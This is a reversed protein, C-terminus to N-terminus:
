IASRALEELFGPRCFWHYKRIAEAPAGRLFVGGRRFHETLAGSDRVESFGLGHVGMHFLKRSPPVTPGVLFRAKALPTHRVMDRLWGGLLISGSAVVLEASRVDPHSPWEVNGDPGPELITVRWGQKKWVRAQPFLGIVLTRMRTALPALIDLSDREEAQAPIPLAAKLCALGISRHTPNGSALMRRAVDVAAWGLWSSFDEPVDSEEQHLNGACYHPAFSWRDTKVMVWRHFISLDRLPVRSSAADKVLQAFLDAGRMPISSSAVPTDDLEPPALRDAWPETAFSTSAPNERSTMWISTSRNM